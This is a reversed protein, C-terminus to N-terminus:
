RPGAAAFSALDLNKTGHVRPVDLDAPHDRRDAANRQFDAAALHEQWSAM